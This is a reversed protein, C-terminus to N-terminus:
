YNQLLTLDKIKESDREFMAEALMEYILEFLEVNENAANIFDPENIYENVKQIATSEKQTLKIGKSIKIEYRLKERKDKETPM